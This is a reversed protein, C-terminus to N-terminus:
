LGHRPGSGGQMLKIEQWKKPTLLLQRPRSGEFPGVYGKEEMADVLRAARSYSLKLRRQLMSVSAQRTELVVEVAAPLMEDDEFSSFNKKCDTQYDLFRIGKIDVTNTNTDSFSLKQITATLEHNDPIITKVKIPPKRGEDSLLAEGYASLIEPNRVGLLTRYTSVSAFSFLVKSRILTSISKTEKWTPTQTVAILHIGVARGNLLIDRMTNVANPWSEIVTSIDDIAVLLRPLKVGNKSCNSYEDLTRCGSQSFLLLRNHIEKTVWELANGVQRPETAVPLLLHPMRNYPSLEIMKTDALVLRLSVPPNHDTLTLLISHLLSSKGTGTAGAILFHAIRGLDACVLANDISEGVFFTLGSTEMIANSWSRM